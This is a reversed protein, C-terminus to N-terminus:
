FPLHDHVVRFTDFYSFPPALLGNLSYKVKKLFLSSRYFWKISRPKGEVQKLNSLPPTQDQIYIFPVSICTYIADSVVSPVAYPFRVVKTHTNTGHERVAVAIVQNKREVLLGSSVSKKHLLSAPRSDPGDTVIFAGRLDVVVSASTGQSEELDGAIDVGYGGNDGDDAM